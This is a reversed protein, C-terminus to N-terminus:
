PQFIKQFQRRILASVPPQDASHNRRVLAAGDEGSENAVVLAFRRDRAGARL